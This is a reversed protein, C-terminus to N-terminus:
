EFDVLVDTSGVVNPVNGQADALGTLTTINFPIQMGPTTGTGTITVAGTITVTVTTAATNWTCSVNGACTLTATTGDQDQIQIAGTTTGNMAESFTASFADGADTFDTTLVNNVVRADVITPPTVDGAPLSIRHPVGPPGHNVLVFPKSPQDGLHLVVLASVPSTFTFGPICGALTGTLTVCGRFDHVDFKSNEGGTPMLVIHFDVSGGFGCVGLGVDPFFQCAGTPPFAVTGKMVTARADAQAAPAAFTFGLIACLIVVSRLM